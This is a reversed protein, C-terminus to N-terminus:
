FHQHKSQNQFCSVTYHLWWAQPPEMWVDTPAIVSSTSPCHSSKSSTWTPPSLHSLCRNHCYILIISLCIIIIISCQTLPLVLTSFNSFDTKCIRWGASLKKHHTASSDLSSDHPCCDLSEEDQDGSGAWGPFSWGLPQGPFLDSNRDQLRRETPCAQFM